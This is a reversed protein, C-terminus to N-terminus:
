DIRVSLMEELCLAQACLQIEDAHDSKPKGRKYEVPVVRGNDHLEVVDAIGRLKLKDSFIHVSRETIISGRKEREGTDVKEHLIRGEATFFNESWLQEVHILACQRPCFIYHQLASISVATEDASM